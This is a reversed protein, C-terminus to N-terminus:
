VHKCESQGNLRIVRRIKTLKYGVRYQINYTAIESVIIGNTYATFVIRSPNPWHTLLHDCLPRCVWELEIM